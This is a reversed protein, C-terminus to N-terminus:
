EYRALRSESETFIWESAGRCIGPGNGGCVFVGIRELGEEEEKEELM